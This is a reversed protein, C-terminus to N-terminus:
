QELNPGTLWFRPSEVTDIVFAPEIRVVRRRCAGLLPIPDMDVHQVSSDVHRVIVEFAPGNWGEIYRTRRVLDAACGARSTCAVYLAVASVTRSCNSTPLVSNRLLCPDIADLDQTVIAASTKSGNQSGYLPYRHVCWFRGDHTHTQAPLTCHLSSHRSDVLGHLLAYGHHNSGPIRAPSASRVGALVCWSEDGTRDSHSGSILRRTTTVLSGTVARVSCTKINVGRPGIDYGRLLSRFTASVFHAAGRHGTRM